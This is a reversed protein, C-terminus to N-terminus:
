YIIFSTFIERIRFFVLMQEKAVRPMKRIAGRSVEKVDTDNMM